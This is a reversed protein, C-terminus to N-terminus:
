GKELLERLEEPETAPLQCAFDRCVYSAPRGDVLERDRLRSGEGDEWHEM